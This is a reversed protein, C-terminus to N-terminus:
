PPRKAQRRGCAKPVGCPQQLISPTWKVAQDEHAGRYAGIYPAHERLPAKDQQVVHRARRVGWLHQMRLHVCAANGSKCPWHKLLRMLDSSTM